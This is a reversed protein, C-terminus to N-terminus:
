DSDGITQEVNPNEEIVTVKCLDYKGNEISAFIYTVGVSRATVTGGVSVSAISSDNSSFKAEEVTNVPKLIATLTTRKGVVLTIESRTLKVSLAPPGVIVDCESTAVTKSGEKITVTITTSGFDIATIEGKDNVTAISTSNSKFTAKQNDNMNYIKLTYKTDKVLSKSKVNLKIDPQTETYESASVIKVNNIIPLPLFVSFFFLFGLTLICKKLKRKM